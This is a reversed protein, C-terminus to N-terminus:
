EWEITGPPKSTVDLCLGSVGPLPLISACLEEILATPFPAPRATMARATYVPRAIVLERGSGDLEMPVLVTACQWVDDYIGHQRLGDMVIQDAQRLLDLRETTTSAALNSATIPVGEGLNWICRNIGPVNKLISGAAALLDDWAIDGSLMVPHEYSRLDAKM